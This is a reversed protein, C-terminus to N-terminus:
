RTSPGRIAKLIMELELRFGGNGRRDLWYLVGLM